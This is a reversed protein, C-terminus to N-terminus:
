SGSRRTRCRRRRHPRGRVAAFGPPSCCPPAPCAPSSRWSATCPPPPSARRPASGPRRSCGLRGRGRATGLRRHEDAREDGAARADRAAADPGISATSAPRGPPSWSRRRTAPWRRRGVRARHGPWARRALLGDRVDAGATRLTRAWRSAGRHPLARIALVAVSVRRRGRGCRRGADVRQVPSPLVLSCSWRSCSRCSRGPSANGASLGRCRPRRRRRRPRPQVARHVDGLVGGPLAHQPVALPLVGRGGYAAAPRRRPRPRGPEMALRLVGHDSSPSAPPRLWRGATSRHPTRGPVPRHGAALRPRGPDRRRRAPAGVGM